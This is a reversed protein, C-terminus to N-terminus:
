DIRCRRLGVVGRLCDNRVSNRFYGKEAKALEVLVRIRGSALFSSRLLVVSTTRPFKGLDVRNFLPRSEKRHHEPNGQNQARQAKQWSSKWTQSARDARCIRRFGPKREHWGNHATAGEGDDITVCDNNTLGLSLTRNTPTSAGLCDMRCFGDLEAALGNTQHQIFEVLCPTM